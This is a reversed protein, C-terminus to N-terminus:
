GKDIRTSNHMGMSNANASYYARPLDHREVICFETRHISDRVDVDFM